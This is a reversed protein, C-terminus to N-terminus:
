TAEKLCSFGGWSQQAWCGVVSSVEGIISMVRRTGGPTAAKDTLATVAGLSNVGDGQHGLHKLKTPLRPLTGGVISGM